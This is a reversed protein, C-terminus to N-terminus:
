GEDETEDEDALGDALDGLTYGSWCRACFWASPIRTGSKNELGPHTEQTAEYLRETAHSCSECRLIAISRFTIKRRSMERRLAATYSYVETALRGRLSSGALECLQAHRTVDDGSMRDWYSPYLYGSACRQAASLLEAFEGTTPPVYGEPPWVKMRPAVDNDRKMELLARRSLTDAAM